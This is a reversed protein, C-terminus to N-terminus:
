VLHETRSNLVRWLANIEDRLSEVERRLDDRIERVDSNDAKNDIADRIMNQVDYYDVDNSM